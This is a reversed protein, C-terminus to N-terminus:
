PVTNLAALPQVTARTHRQHLLQARETLHLDTTLLGVKFDGNPFHLRLM